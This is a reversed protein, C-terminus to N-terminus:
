NQQQRQAALQRFMEMTQAEKANFASLRESMAAAKEEKKRQKEQGHKKRSRERDILRSQFSDSGLLEDDGVELDYDRESMARNMAAKEKKKAIMAERGTEKPVIEEMVDKHHNQYNKKEKKEALRQRDRLDELEDYPLTPGIQPRPESKEKRYILQDVSHSLSDVSDKAAEVEFNDVNKFNWKYSTREKSSLESPLLGNYYRDDLKGKNWRKVFKKFYRHADETPFDTLFKGKSEKLWLMFESSREFYSDSNLEPTGPPLGRSSKKSKKSKKAADSDSDSSYQRKKHKM